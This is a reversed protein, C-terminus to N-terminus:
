SILDGAISAASGILGSSNGLRESDRIVVRGLPGDGVEGAGEGGVAGAVPFSVHSITIGRILRGAAREEAMEGGISVAAGTLEAIGTPEAIFSEGGGRFAAGGEGGGCGCRFDSGSKGTGVNKMSLFRAGRLIGAM